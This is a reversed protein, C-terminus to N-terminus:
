GQRANSGVVERENKWSKNELFDIGGVREPVAM